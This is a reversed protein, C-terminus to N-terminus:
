TRRITLIITKLKRRITVLSVVSHYPVLHLFFGEKNVHMTKSINFKRSCVRFTFTFSALFGCRLTFFRRVNNLQFACLFIIRVAEVRKERVLNKPKNLLAYNWM